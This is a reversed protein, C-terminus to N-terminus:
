RFPPLVARFRPRGALLARTTMKYVTRVGWYKEFRKRAPEGTATTTAM